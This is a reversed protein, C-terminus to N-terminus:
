ECKSIRDSQLRLDLPQDYDVTDTNNTLSIACETTIPTMTPATSSPPCEKIVKKKISRKCPIVLSFATRKRPCLLPINKSLNDKFLNYEFLKRQTQEYTMKASHRQRKLMQKSKAYYEDLKILGVGRLFCKIEEPDAGPSFANEM